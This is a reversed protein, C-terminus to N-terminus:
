SVTFMPFQGNRSYPSSLTSVQGQEWCPAPSPSIHHNWLGSCGSSCFLSKGQEQTPFPFPASLSICAHLNFFPSTAVKTLWHDSVLNHLTIETPALLMSLFYTGPGTGPALYTGWGWGQHLFARHSQPIIDVVWKWPVRLPFETWDYFLKACEDWLM